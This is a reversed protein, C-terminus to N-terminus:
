KLSCKGLRKGYLRNNYARIPAGGTGGKVRVIEVIGALQVISIKGDHFAMESYSLVPSDPNGALYLM